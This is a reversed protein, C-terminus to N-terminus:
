KKSRSAMWTLFVTRSIVGCFWSIMRAIKRPTGSSLIFRQDAKGIIQTIIQEAPNIKKHVALANWPAIM